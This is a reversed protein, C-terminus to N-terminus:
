VFSFYSEQLSLSEVDQVLAILEMRDGESQVIAMGTPMGSPAPVLHYDNASGSLQIFDETPNFNVIMAVGQPNVNGEGLLFTDVGNGGILETSIGEGTLLDAVPNAQNGSHSL